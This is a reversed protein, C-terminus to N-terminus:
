STYKVGERLKVAMGHKRTETSESKSNEQDKQDSCISSISHFLYSNMWCLRVLINEKHKRMGLMAVYPLRWRLSRKMHCTISNYLQLPTQTSIPCHLQWAQFSWPPVVSFILISWQLDKCYFIPQLHEFWPQTRHNRMIEINEWSRQIDKAHHGRHLSWLHRGCSTWPFGTPKVGVSKIGPLPICFNLTSWMFFNVVIKFTRFFCLGRTYSM